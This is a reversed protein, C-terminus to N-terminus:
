PRTEESELVNVKEGDVVFLAGRAVIRDGESFVGAKVSEIRRLMSASERVNVPVQEVTDDKVRFVWHEGQRSNIVNAPVYFGSPLPSESLDVRVIEGPRLMWRKRIYYATAQNNKSSILPSDLVQGNADTFQGAIMDTKPNLEGIDTLERLTAVQLFPVRREGLSVRVKVLELKSDGSIHPKGIKRNSVKWVYAGKSDEHIAKVNVFYPPTVEMSESYIRWLSRIRVIEAPDFDAPLGVEFQQNRLLLSVNFTRTAPDALAAKEYVMGEVSEKQDALYVRVVDNYNLRQDTEASVSVEVMIPDMMQVTVVPKGEQVFSGPIKHVEAIQGHYASVLKTDRLNRKASLVEQEAQKVQATLSDLEAATVKQDAMALEYDAKSKEWLAIQRDLESRTTAGKKFLDEVRALEAQSQKKSAEEAAKRAPVAEDLEIQKANRQSDATRLKAEAAAVQVRYREQDLAAIVTGATIENGLEDETRGLIFTGPELVLEIRGSVEFGLQETKWSIVSGAVQDVNEPVTEHLSIVTVPRPTVKQEAPANGSDCGSLLLLMLWFLLPPYRRLQTCVSTM